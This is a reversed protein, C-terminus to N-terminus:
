LILYFIHNHKREIKVGVFDPKFGATNTVALSAGTGTYLTADMYKNGQLITPTPLNYTNLAVFGTPPTYSFPRQGFNIDM